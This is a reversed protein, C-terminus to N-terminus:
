QVKMAQFRKQATKAIQETVERIRGHQADAVADCWKVRYLGYLSRIFPWIAEPAHASDDRSASPWRMM